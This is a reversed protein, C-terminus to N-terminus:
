LRPVETSSTVVSSKRESMPWLFKRGRYGWDVVVYAAMILYLPMIPFIYRPIITLLAYVGSFCLIVIALISWQM